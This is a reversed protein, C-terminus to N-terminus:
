AAKQYFKAPRGRKGTEKFSEQVALGLEVLRDLHRRAVQPDVGATKAVSAVTMKRSKNKSLAKLVATTSKHLKLQDTM